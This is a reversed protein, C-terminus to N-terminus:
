KIKERLAKERERLKRKRRFKRKLESLGTAPRKEWRHHLWLWQEPNARIHKELVDNMLQTNHKLDEEKNDTNQFPLAEEVTAKHYFTGGKRALFIPVVSAGTKTAIASLGKSTLAPKGFFNLMLGEKHNAKQDLLIGIMGNARLTKFMKMLANKKSIPTTRHTSRTEKIYKDIRKFPVERYIVGYEYGMMGVVAGLLEWNGIHGTLLVVGKGPEFAKELNEKGEIEIYKNIYDNDADKIRLFEILNLALHYYFKKGIKRIEKKTLEDGYAYKIHHEVTKRRSGIGLFGYYFVTSLVKAYFYGWSFPTKRAFFELIYILAVSFIDIIENFIKM